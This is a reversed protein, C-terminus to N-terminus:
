AHAVEVRAAVCPDLSQVLWRAQRQASAADGAQARTLAAALVGRPHFNWETPAVIRWAAVRGDRDRRVRHVLLGRATDVWGVGDGAGAPAAGISGVSKASALAALEALRALCRAFASRGHRVVARRVVPEGNARALAGTEAPAGRWQPAREFTEDADMQAVLGAVMPADAQPLLDVDSAGYAGLERAHRLARATPTSAADIWADIGEAACRALWAGPADGFAARAMPAAAEVLAADTARLTAADASAAGPALAAALVDAQAALARRSTAVTPVAAQAAGADHWTRPWEVLAQLFGDQMMEAAVLRRRAAVVDDPAVHGAAAESAAAAAVAQSRGCVSFLRPVLRCAEAVRRGALVRSALFPRTSRIQVSDTRDACRHLVVHLEGEITV